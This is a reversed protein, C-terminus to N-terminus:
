AKKAKGSRKAKHSATVVPAPPCDKLELPQNLIKTNSYDHLESVDHLSMVEGFMENLNACYATGAKLGVEEQSNALDATYDTYKSAGTKGYSRKFYTALTAEATSVQPRFRTMFDNFHAKAEDGCTEATVMLQSKLGEIDFATRDPETTCAPTAPATSKAHSAHKTSAAQLPAACLGAALLCAAFLAPTSRSM